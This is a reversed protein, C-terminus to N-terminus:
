RGVGKRLTRAQIVPAAWHKNFRGLDTRSYCSPVLTGARSVMWSWGVRRDLASCPENM